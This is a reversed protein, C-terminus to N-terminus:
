RKILQRELSLGAWKQIQQAVVFNNADTTLPIITAVGAEITSTVICNPPVFLTNNYEIGDVAPYPIVAANFQILCGFPSYFTALKWAVPITLATTALALSKRILSLPRIVDLPIAQEGATSLPYLQKVSETAM